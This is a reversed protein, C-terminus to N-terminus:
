VHQKRTKSGVAEVLTCIIVATAIGALDALWDAIDASRGVFLQTLEDIIGYVMGMGLVGIATQRLSWRSARLAAFLLIGLIGYVGLHIVKDRGTPVHVAKPPLHTLTFIGAWYLATLIWAARKSM